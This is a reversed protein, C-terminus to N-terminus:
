SINLFLKYDITKWNNEIDEIAMIKDLIVNQRKGEEFAESYPIQSFTVMSYLPIWQTPFQEHLLAEIKKRLLFSDNIVLESMEIFNLRALESIADTNLKRYQQYEELISSWNGDNKEIIEDLERVDEFGANMGQGYFPVMSHAADGILAVKNDYCWPYCSISVLSSTPNKFFEKNLNPMLPVVDGFMELFFNQLNDNTTLAEFSKEGKFPLFLTCTFSGDANPLAILMFKGRPWIHLSNPSLKHNGLSDAPITLEKYGHDLYTQSYNYRETKMMANRVSSFAGDAGFIVDAKVNLRQGTVTNESHTIADTLNVDWCKENFHFNINDHSEAINVLTENFYRRSISYIAQNDKGYPQYKTTGDQHHIMRGFMPIAIERIEKEIGLVELAKWGRDSVALNISRGVDVNAQRFDPRREFVHVNYKRKALYIALLTGVLGAGLITIKSPNDTNV